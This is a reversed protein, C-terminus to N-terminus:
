KRWPLTKYGSVNITVNRNYFDYRRLYLSTPSPITYNAQAVFAFNKYSAPVGRSYFVRSTHIAM